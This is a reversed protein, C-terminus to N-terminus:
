PGRLGLRELAVAVECAPLGVVNSYSGEIRAVLAGGLGQVAYAGAKDSGEGSAAYAAIQATDLARFTVATVVTEAHAIEGSARAVVFRSRVEHSRGALRAIMSRAEDESSPKGLVAGDLVVSTDAVLVAGARARLEEPLTAIVEFLKARTVRDLYAELGEGPLVDENAEAKHVVFPVRIATLIERRRPSGSGLVLPREPTLLGRSLDPPSHM